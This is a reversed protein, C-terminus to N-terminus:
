HWTKEDSPTLGDAFPMAFFPGSDRVYPTVVTSDQYRMSQDLGCAPHKKGTQGEDWFQHRLNYLRSPVSQIQRM